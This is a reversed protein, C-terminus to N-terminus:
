PAASEAVPIGWLRLIGDDSTSALLRGDPSFAVGWYRGAYDFLMTVQQGQEVNWLRVSSDVSASALLRGDLSFALDTVTDRHGALPVTTLALPAPITTPFSTTTPISPTISLTPPPPTGASLISGLRWLGVAGEGSATALLLGNPSFALDGFPGPQDLEHALQGDSVRWLRVTDDDAASALLAGDPSFAIQRVWDTHGSLTRLLAGDAVRWLRVTEDDSASALLAGDPSFVVKRVWDTHGSLTNLLEGDSARWLRVHDDAGGSALLEGDPSFAISLVFGAHDDLAAILEGNVANWLRVTNDNSASALLSGDPSFAIDTVDATHGSLRLPLGGGAPWVWVEDNQGTTALARGDASFAVIFMLSSYRDIMETQTGTAPDWFRITGDSSASAIAEGDPSFVSEEIWNTHGTMTYVLSGDSVQWLRVTDDDSGSALLTGDPSFAVSLVAEDHETLTSLILGEPVSWLRVTTDHSASALTQGDPSFALAWVTNTHGSLTRQLTGEAAGWLRISGDGAGSAIWQGDPSFAVSWVGNEHGSLVRLSALEHDTVDWLRVTDDWSGSILLDGDPSFAMDTVRETHATASALMDGDLMRWLEITGNRLGVALREGSPDFALTDVPVVTEFFAVVEHSTSDHLYVGSAAGAALLRGDPSYAIDEVVGPGWRAVPEVRGANEPSLAEGETPIPVPTSGIVNPTPAPTPTASSTATAALTPTDRPTPALTPALTPRATSTQDAAVVETMRAALATANEARDRNNAAVSWIMWVGWVVLFAALIVIFAWWGRLKGSAPPQPHAKAVPPRQGPAPPRQAPPRVQTEEGTAVSRGAAAPETEVRRRPTPPVPAAPLRAALEAVSAPREEIRLRMAWLIAASTDRSLSPNLQRPPRLDVSGASRETSRPPAEGTLLAYLTAGLAYVDSRPETTGDYQEPPAYGATAGKAGPATQGSQAKAIGFDVLMVDGKPTLIINSPKVDRHIVPPTQTHLFDLADAVQRIWPLVEAEALPGGRAELVSQLSRGAIFDMVMYQGGGPREFYDTVRPLHKHHLQALLLAEAKFQERAQPTILLNEKLAVRKGSLNLDEAEYVAGFGGGGVLGAVRYRNHHLLDGSNLAM